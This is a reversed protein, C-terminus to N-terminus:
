AGTTGYARLFVEVARDAALHISRVAVIQEGFMAREYLEGQLLGKLHMAAVWGDCPAITGAGTHHELYHQMLTWGARPGAEYFQRGHGTRHAHQQAMRVASLMEPALLQTLYTRGFQRLVDRVPREPDLAIFAQQLRTEASHALVAQVLHDKSPFYSYITSKSGGIRSVIESMTANEFGLESFTAAAVQLIHDRRAASKTRM